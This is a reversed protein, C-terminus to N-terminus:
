RSYPLSSHHAVIKMAGDDQFEYTFTYEVKVPDSFPGTANTFYYHGMAHAVGDGICDTKNNDFRVKGWGYGKNIAFGQDEEFGKPKIADFGVFYSLAGQATPRFPHASALTPKFLVKGVDYGYLKKIGERAVTIFDGGSPNALYASSIFLILDKWEAQAAEIDNKCKKNENSDTNRSQLITREDKVQLLAAEESLDCDTCTTTVAMQAMLGLAVAGKFLWAM